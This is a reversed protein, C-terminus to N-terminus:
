QLLRGPKLEDPTDTLTGMSRLLEYATLSADSKGALRQSQAQVFADEADTVTFNDGRGIEFLRQALDLRARAHRLNRERIKLDAAARRYALIRQQLERTISLELLDIFQESSRAEIGAQRLNNREPTRNLDTDARLGLFWREDDILGTTPPDTIHEYRAVLSLDPWLGRRAIRVGRRADTMDQLAQAYDVRNDFAVGAAEDLPPVEVVLPTTPALDFRAHTEFGLLEAFARRSSELRERDSELRSLAQGRQLDVRLTDIRTARGLAEKAETSNFLTESRQYAQRDARLQQELRLINEYERAVEVVLDQKQSELRRRARMLESEAQVIPEQNVLRGAFRFLPQSIEVIVREGSDSIESDEHVVRSSVETGTVFRKSANLGLTTAGRRGDVANVSLEPGASLSFASEATEVAISASHTGLTAIALSRNRTLAIEVARELTLEPSGAGSEIADASQVTAGWLGTAGVCLLRIALKRYKSMKIKGWEM